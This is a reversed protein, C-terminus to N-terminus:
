RWHGTAWRWHAFTAPYQATLRGWAAHAKAFTRLRKYKKRLWRVLYGNIRQLLPYLESRYFAGYYQMWGRVIPNIWRALEGITYGTHQHLRWSRVEASIKKLADKSIAPGFGTFVKGHRTRMGRARFTFGLYTFSVHEASGRREGDQCYVVRTKQPHLRLGVQEMREGIAEAVMRAQRESRCHV